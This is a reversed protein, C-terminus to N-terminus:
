QNSSIRGAVMQFVPQEHHRGLLQVARGAARIVAGSQPLPSYFVLGWVRVASGNGIGPSLSQVDTGRQQYVHMTYFFPNIVRMSADTAFVLDFSATGAATGAQYNAVSGILAQPELRVTEAVMLAANGNTDHRIGRMSQVQLHQGLVMSDGDFQLSQLGTMDINNTDVVYNPNESMDVSVGIGVISSKMGTGSGDQSALTVMSSNPINDSVVGEMVLGQHNELVEVKLATLSGNKDSQGRVAVILGSLTSLTGNRFQTSSTVGFTLATGTQGNQVTFSNSSVSTVSGVIRGVSGNEPKQKGLTSVRVANVRFMASGNKTASKGMSANVIDEPSIQFNFVVPNADVTLAPTFSLVAKYIKSLRRTVLLGSVPDLSTTRADSAQITVQTYQGRPLSSVAVTESDGAWHMIEVSLPSAVLPATTGDAATAVVSNLKMGFCVIGDSPTGGIRVQVATRAVKSERPSRESTTAGVACIALLLFLVTLVAKPALGKTTKAAINTSMSTPKM